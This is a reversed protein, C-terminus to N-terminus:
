PLVWFLFMFKQDDVGAIVIIGTDVVVKLRRQGEFLLSFGARFQRCHDTHPFVRIQDGLTSIAIDGAFAVPVIIHHRDNLDLAFGDELLIINRACLRRGAGFGVGASIEVSAQGGAGGKCGPQM